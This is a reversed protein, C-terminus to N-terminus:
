PVAEPAPPRFQNTGLRLSATGLRLSAGGPEAAEQEPATTAFPPQRQYLLHRLLRLPPRISNIPRFLLVHCRSKVKCPMQIRALRNHGRGAPIHLTDSYALFKAHKRDVGLNVVCLKAHLMHRPPSLCTTKECSSQCTIAILSLVVTHPPLLLLPETRPPCMGVGSTLTGRDVPLSCNTQRCLTYHM